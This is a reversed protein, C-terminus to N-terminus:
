LFFIIILRQTSTLLKNKNKSKKLKKKPTNSLFIKRREIIRASLNNSKQIRGSIEAQATHSVVAHIINMFDKTFKM